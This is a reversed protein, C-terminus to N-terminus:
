NAGSQQMSKELKKEYESVSDTVGSKVTESYDKGTTSSRSTFGGFTNHIVVGLIVVIILFMFIRM